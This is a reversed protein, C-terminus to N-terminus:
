VSLFQKACQYAHRQSTIWIIANNRKFWRMQRKAYHEEARVLGEILTPKSIKKDLYEALLVFEFGLERWRKKSLAARLKKAEAVMGARLRTEVGARLSKQGNLGLWLVDYTDHTTRPPSTGIAEAIEIARILRRKHHPEITKARAPDLKKLQAFLQKTTKQELRERLKKNPPVNPYSMRGTLMDAYLGTGGVVIPINGSHYIMTIIRTAHRVYDDASFQRRPDAIGVMHAKDARSIVRMGKYVQRSDASIIEGGLKKALYAGLASKGSATPGVIAILKNRVPYTYHM